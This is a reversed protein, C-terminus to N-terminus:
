PVFYCNHILPHLTLLTHRYPNPAFVPMASLRVLWPFLANQVIRGFSVSMFVLAASHFFVPPAAGSLFVLRDFNAIDASM